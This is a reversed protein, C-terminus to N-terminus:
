YSLRQTILKVLDNDVDHAMLDLHEDIEDDLNLINRAPMESNELANSIAEALDNVDGADVTFNRLNDEVVSSIEGELGEINGANVEPINDEIHQNLARGMPTECRVQDIFAKQVARKSFFWRVIRACFKDVKTSFWRALSFQRISGLTQILATM